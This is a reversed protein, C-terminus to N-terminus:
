MEFNCNIGNEELNLYVVNKFIEPDINEFDNCRNKGLILNKVFPLYRLVVNM